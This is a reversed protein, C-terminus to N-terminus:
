HAGGGERLLRRVRAPHDTVIADVGADRVRAVDAPDNVTWAHVELGLRRAAAVAAPAALAHQLSVAALGLDRAQALEPLADGAARSGAAVLLAVPAEPLARRCARCVAPDFACISFGGSPVSARLVRALADEVGAQKVEAVLAARGALRDAAEALTPVGLGRLEATDLEDVARGDGRTRALSRDHMLVLVGDASARVDVEVADAGARVAADIGDLSNEPMTGMTTRHSVVFTM